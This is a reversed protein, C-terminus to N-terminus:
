SMTGRSVPYFHIRFFDPREFCSKNSFYIVPEVIEPFTHINYFIELLSRLFQSVERDVKLCLFLTQNRHIMCFHIQHILITGVKVGSGEDVWGPFLIKVGIGGPICDPINPVKDVSTRSQPTAYSPYVVSSHQRELDGM